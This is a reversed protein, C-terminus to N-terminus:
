WGGSLLAPLRLSPYSPRRGMRFVRAWKWLGLVIFWGRVTRVGEAPM